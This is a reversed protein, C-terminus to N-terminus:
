RGGYKLWWEINKRNRLVQTGPDYHRYPTVAGAQYLIHNLAASDSWEPRMNVDLIQDPHEEQFARVGAHMAPAYDRLAREVGLLMVTAQMFTWAPISEKKVRWQAGLYSGSNPKWRPDNAYIPELDIWASFADWVSPNMQFYAAFKPDLYGTIDDGGRGPDIGAAMGLFAASLPTDTEEMVKATLRRMTDSSFGVARSGFTTGVSLEGTAFLRDGTMVHYLGNFLLVGETWYDILESFAEAMPVSPGALAWRQRTRPDHLFKLVPRSFAYDASITQFEDDMATGRISMLQARLRRPNDFFNVLLSRLNERRFSWFWVAKGLTEREIRGMRGYDFLSERSLLLAEDPPTGAKLADIFVGVRFADDSLEAVRQFLGQVVRIGGDGIDLGALSAATKRMWGQGYQGFDEGKFRKGIENARLGSWSIMDTMVQKGLEASVQSQLQSALYDAVTKTTWVQGLPSTFLVKDPVNGLHPYLMRLVSCNDHRFVQRVGRAAAAPGLTSAMIAAATMVNPGFYRFNPLGRGGLKSGKVWQSVMSSDILNLVTDTVRMFRSNKTYGNAELTEAMNELNLRGMLQAKVSGPLQLEDALNTLRGAPGHLIGTTADIDNVMGNKAAFKLYDGFMDSWAQNEGPQLGHGRMRILDLIGSQAIIDQVEDPSWLNDRGTLENLTDAIKRHSKSVGNAADKIAGAYIEKLLIAAANDPMEQSMYPFRRKLFEDFQQVFWGGEHPAGEFLPAGIEETRAPNFVDDILAAAKTQLWSANTLTLFEDGGLIPGDLKAAQTALKEQQAPSFTTRKLLATGTLGDLQDFVERLTVFAQAYDPRPGRLLDQAKDILVKLPDGDELNGLAKWMFKRVQQPDVGLRTSIVAGATTMQVNAYNEFGGYSNAIIDVIADQPREYVEFLVQAYARPRSGTENAAQKMARDFMKGMNSWADGLENVLAQVRPDTPEADTMEQGLKRIELGPRVKGLLPINGGSRLEEPTFIRRLEWESEPTGAKRSQAIVKSTTTTGPMALAAADIARSVIANYESVPISKLRAPTIPNPSHNSLFRALDELFEAPADLGETQLMDRAVAHLDLRHQGNVTQTYRSARGKGMFSEWFGDRLNDKLFAAVRGAPTAELQRMLGARSKEAVVVRGTGIRYGEGTLKAKKLIDDAADFLLQRSVAARAANSLDVTPATAARTPLDLKQRMGPPLNQLDDLSYKSTLQQVADTARLAKQELLNKRPVFWEMIDGAAARGMLEPLDDQVRAVGAALTESDGLLGFERLKETTQNIYDEDLRVSEGRDVRQTLTMLEDAADRAQQNDAHRTAFNANFIDEFSGPSFAEQIRMPQGAKRATAMRRSALSVAKAADSVFLDMPIMFEIGLGAIGGGWKAATELRRRADSGEEWDLQDALTNALATGVDMGGGIFGLGEQIREPVAEGVPKDSVAAEIGGVAASTPAGLLRAAWMPTSEITEGSRFPTRQSVLPGLVGEAMEPDLTQPMLSGVLGSWGEPERLGQSVELAEPLTEGVLQAGYLAGTSVAGGIGAGPAAGGLDPKPPRTQDAVATRVASPIVAFDGGPTFGLAELDGLNRRAIEQEEPDPYQSLYRSTAGGIDSAPLGMLEIDTANVPPAPTSIQSRVSEVMADNQDVADIYEASWGSASLTQREEPTFPM